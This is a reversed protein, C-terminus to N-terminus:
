VFEDFVTTELYKSMVNACTNCLACYNETQAASLKAFLTLPATFNLRSKRAERSVKEEHFKGLIVDRPTM